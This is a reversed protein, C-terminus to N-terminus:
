EFPAGSRSYVPWKKSEFEAKDVYWEFMEKYTSLVGVSKKGPKRTCIHGDAYLYNNNRGHWPNGPDITHSAYMSESYGRVGTWNCCRYIYAYDINSNPDEIKLPLGEFLLITAQMKPISSSRIGKIISICERSPFYERDAPERLYSNMSYSRPDYRSEWDPMTPCCFVSKRGRQNIYGQIGGEGSQAWYTWDGRLGGPCPWYDSWDQAYMNFAGNLQKLNSICKTQFGARRIQFFLPFLIAALIAICALTVLLDIVSLGSRKNGIYQHFGLEKQAGLKVSHSGAVISYHNPPAIDFTKKADNNSVSFTETAQEALAKGSFM